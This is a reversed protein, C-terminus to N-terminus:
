RSYSNKFNIWLSLKLSVIEKQEKKIKYPGTQIVCVPQNLSVKNEAEAKDKPLIIELVLLYWIKNKNWNTEKEPDYTENVPLLRM